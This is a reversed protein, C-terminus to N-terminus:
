FIMALVIKMFTRCITIKINSIGSLAQEIDISIYNNHVIAIFWSAIYVVLCMNVLAQGYSFTEDEKLNLTRWIKAEFCIFVIHDTTIKQEHASVKQYVYL